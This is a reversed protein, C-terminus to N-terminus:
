EQGDLYFFWEGTDARIAGVWGFYTDDEYVPPGGITDLDDLEDANLSSFDRGAHYPFVSLDGTEEEDVPALSFVGAMIGLVDVGESIRDQWYGVPGDPHDPGSTYAFFPGTLEELADFDGAEAAAVIAAATAVVNAPLEPNTTTTTTGSTTTTTTASSTTTTTEGSTTTTTESSTTTTTEGSTTSTTTSGGTDATTSTTGAGTTTTAGADTTTTAGDSTTTASTTTVASTTSGSAEIPDDGSSAVIAIVVIVAVVAGLAIILRTRNNM